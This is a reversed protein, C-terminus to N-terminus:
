QLFARPLSNGRHYTRSAWTQTWGKDKRGLKACAGKQVHMKDKDGAVRTLPRVLSAEQDQVKGEVLTPEILGKGAGNAAEPVDSYYCYCIFM